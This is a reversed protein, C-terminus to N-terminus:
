SCEPADENGLPIMRRTIIVTTERNRRNHRRSPEFPLHQKKKCWSWERCICLILEVVVTWFIFVYWIMNWLELGTKNYETVATMNTTDLAFSENCWATDNSLALDEIALYVSNISMRELSVDTVELLFNIVLFMPLITKRFREWCTESCCGCRSRRNNKCCDAGEESVECLCGRLKVVAEVADM